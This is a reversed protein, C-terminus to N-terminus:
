GKRGPRRGHKPPPDAPPPEVSPSAVQPATEQPMSPPGPHSFSRRASEAIEAEEHCVYWQAEGGLRGGVVQYELDELVGRLWWLFRAKRRPPLYDWVFECFRVLAFCLSFGAGLVRLFDLTQM